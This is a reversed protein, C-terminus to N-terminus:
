KAAEQKQEAPKEKADEQIIKAKLDPVKIGFDELDFSRKFRNGGRVPISEGLGMRLWKDWMRDVTKNSGLGALKALEVSGRTGDSNHYVLKDVDTELETKLVSKVQNMGTFKIWKLIEKLLQTQEEQTTM